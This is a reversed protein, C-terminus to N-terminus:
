PGFKLGKGQVPGQSDLGQGQGELDIRTRTRTRTKTPKTRTRTRAHGTVTLMVPQKGLYESCVYSPTPTHNSWRFHWMRESLSNNSIETHKVDYLSIKGPASLNEPVQITSRKSIWQRLTYESVTQHSSRVSGSGWLDTRWQSSNHKHRTIHILRTCLQARGCSARWVLTVRLRQQQRIDHFVILSTISHNLISRKCVPATLLYTSRVITLTLLSPPSLGGAGM